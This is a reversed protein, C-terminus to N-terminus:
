VEERDPCQHCDLFTIIKKYFECRYYKVGRGCSRCDYEVRDLVRHKCRGYLSHFLWPDEKNQRYGQIPGPPRSGKKPLFVDGNPLVRAGKPLSV